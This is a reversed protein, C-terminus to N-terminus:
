DDELALGRYALKQWGEQLTRDAEEEQLERLKDYQEELLLVVNRGIEPPQVRVTEGSIIAQRQDETLEIM